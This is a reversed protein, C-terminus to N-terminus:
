VFAHRAQHEASIRSRYQGEIEGPSRAQWRVQRHNRTVRLDQALGAIKGGVGVTASRGVVKGSSDYFTRSQASAAGTMMVLTLLTPLIMKMPRM